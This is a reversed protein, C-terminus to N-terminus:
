KKLDGAEILVLSDRPPQSVLEKIEEALQKQAAAGKVWVLRRDSFMPVTHAASVLRGPNAEVETADLRVSSFPDDADLGSGTAFAKARESVLGRDPGYILVIRTERDPRRLWADVEHAKKQAM